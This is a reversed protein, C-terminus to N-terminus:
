RLIAHLASVSSKYRCRHCLPSKVCRTHYAESRVYLFHEAASKNTKDSMCTSRDACFPHLSKWIGYITRNTFIFPIFFCNVSIVLYLSPQFWIEDECAKRKHVDLNTCIKGSSQKHLWQPHSWFRDPICAIAFQSSGLDPDFIDIYQEVNKHEIRNNLNNKQSSM